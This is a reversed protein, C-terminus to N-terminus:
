QLADAFKTDAVHLNAGRVVEAEPGDRWYTSPAEADAILPPGSMVSVMGFRRSQGQSHSFEFILVRRLIINKLEGEFNL